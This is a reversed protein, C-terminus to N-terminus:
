TEWIAIEGCDLADASRRDRWAKPVNTPTTSNHAVSRFIRLSGCELTGIWKGSPTDIYGVRKVHPVLRTSSNPVRGSSEGENPEAECPKETVRDDSRNRTWSRESVSSDSSVGTTSFKRSNASASWRIGWADRLMEGLRQSDFGPTHASLVLLKPRRRTLEVCMELLRPLDQAIRWTEGRRGHGYTPPDLIIVDYVRGRQIERSVFKQVDESIWRIRADGLGSLTANQRARATVNAAADLHTVQVREQLPSANSPLDPLNSLDPSLNSSLDSSFNPHVAAAAALTSGGTYAFLNLIRLPEAASEGDHLPTNRHEHLWRHVFRYIRNWVPIQEPFIGLHGFPSRRLELRMPEHGVNWSEPITPTNPSSTKSSERDVMMSPKRNEVISDTWRGSRATGIDFKATARKWREPHAPPEPGAFPSERDLIVEGFRELRRGHGFDLLEYDFFLDDLM